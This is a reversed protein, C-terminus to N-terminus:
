GIYIKMPVVDKTSCTPCRRFTAKPLTKLCESCLVHGCPYFATDIPNELCIQCSMIDNKFNVCGEACVLDKIKEGTVLEKDLKITFLKRSEKEETITQKKDKLSGTTLLNYVQTLPNSSEYHPDDINTKLGAELKVRKCINEVMHDRVAPVVEFYLDIFEEPVTVDTNKIARTLVLSVDVCSYTNLKPELEKILKKVETLKTINEINERYVEILLNIVTYVDLFPFYEESKLMQAIHSIKLSGLSSNEDCFVYTQLSEFLLKIEADNSIIDGYVSLLDISQLSIKSIIEPHIDIMQKIKESIHQRSVDGHNILESITVCCENLMVIFNVCFKKNKIRETFNENLFKIFCMNTITVGKNECLAKIIEKDIEHFNNFFYSHTEPNSLLAKFKIKKEINKYINLVFKEDTNNVLAMVFIQCNLKFKANIKKELSQSFSYEDHSIQSLLNVFLSKNIYNILNTRELLLNYMTASELEFQGIFEELFEDTFIKKMIEFVCTGSSNHTVSKPTIQNARILEAVFQLDQKILAHIFTEHSKINNIFMSPIINNSIAYQLLECTKIMCVDYVHYSRISYDLVDRLMKPNNKVDVIFDSFHKFLMQTQSSLIMKEYFEMKENSDCDKIGKIALEVLCDQM